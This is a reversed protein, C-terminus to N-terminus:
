RKFQILGWQGSTMWEPDKETLAEAQGSTLGCIVESKNTRLALLPSPFYNLIDEFSTTPPWHRDGLLRRYHADGKSIVLGSKQLDLRLDEPMEWFALPSTWFHEQRFIIRGQEIYDRLRAAVIEADPSSLNAIYAITENVDKVIADSVFVPYAKAHLHVSHALDASLVYDTLFLDAVLEFGANDLLLDFRATGLELDHLYEFVNQSHNIIIQDLNDDVQTLQTQEGEGVPWLSMDARNGWLDILLIHKFIDPTRTQEVTWKNAMSALPQMAGKASALGRQKQLVFPDKLHENGESGFYGTAELIRRYLYFEAFFWPIDLWNMGVYLQVYNQWGEADPAEPDQLPRISGHAIEKILEQLSNIVLGTFENEDITRGVIDPLRRVITDHAFSGIESGRLSEPISLNPLTNDTMRVMKRSM